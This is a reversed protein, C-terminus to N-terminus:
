SSLRGNDASTTQTKNREKNKKIKKQYKREMSMVNQISIRPKNLFKNWADHLKLKRIIEEINRKNLGTEKSLLDLSIEYIGDNKYSQILLILIKTEADM